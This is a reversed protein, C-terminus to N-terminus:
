EIKYLLKMGLTSVKMSQYYNSSYEGASYYNTLGHNYELGLKLNKSIRYLPSLSLSLNSKSKNDTSPRPYNPDTYWPYVLTIESPDFSGRKDTFKSNLIISPVIALDLSWKRYSYTAGIPIEVSYFKFSETTVFEFNSGPPVTTNQVIITNRREAQLYSFALGAHVAVNQKLDYSGRFGISFQPAPLNKYDNSINSIMGPPLDQKIPKSRSFVTGADVHLDISVKKQAEIKLMCLTLLCCILYKM